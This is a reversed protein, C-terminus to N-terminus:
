NLICLEPPWGEGHRGLGVGKQLARLTLSVRDKQEKVTRFPFFSLRGAYGQGKGARETVPHSASSLSLLCHAKRDLPSKKFTGDRGTGWVGGAPNRPPLPPGM